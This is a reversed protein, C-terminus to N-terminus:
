FNYSQYDVPGPRVCSRHGVERETILCTVSVQMHVQKAVCWRSARSKTLYMGSLSPLATQATDLMEVTQPIVLHEVPCGGVIGDQIPFHEFLIHVDPAKSAVGLPMNLTTERQRSVRMQATHMVRPRPVRSHKIHHRRTPARGAIRCSM